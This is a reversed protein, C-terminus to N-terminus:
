FWWTHCEGLVECLFSGNRLSNWPWRGWSPLSVVHGPPTRDSRPGPVYVTNVYVARDGGTRAILWNEDHVAQSRKMQVAAQPQWGLNLIWNCCSFSLSMSLTGKFNPVILVSRAAASVGVKLDGHQTHHQWHCHWHWQAPCTPPEFKRKWHDPLVAPEHGKQSDYGALIRVHKPVMCAAHQLPKHFLIPTPEAEGIM